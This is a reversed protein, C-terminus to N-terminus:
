VASKRVREPDFCRMCYLKVWFPGHLQLEDRLRRPV